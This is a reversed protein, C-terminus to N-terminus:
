CNSPGSMKQREEQIDRMEEAKELEGEGYRQETSCSCNGRGEYKLVRWLSIHVLNLCKRGGQLTYIPASDKSIMRYVEHQSTGYNVEETVELKPDNSQLGPCPRM